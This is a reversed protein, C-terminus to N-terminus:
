EFQMKGAMDRLLLEMREVEPKRRFERQAQLQPPMILLAEGTVSIDAQVQRMSNAVSESFGFNLEYDNVDYELGRSSFRGKPYAFIGCKDGIEGTMVISEDKAFRITQQDTHLLLLREKRYETRLSRMTAEHHDLRGGVACILTISKASQADAYRIAKILDTLNQNKHPVITVGFNGIYEEEEDHLNAFTQHIGWFKIHTLNESDFDGLLINPTIGVRVLKDAAEGLAIIIKNKAAEQIIERVLFDGDAVILYDSM